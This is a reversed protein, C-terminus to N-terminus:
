DKLLHKGLSVKLPSEVFRESVWRTANAFQPAIQSSHSVFLVAVVVAEHAIIDDEFACVPKKRHLYLKIAYGIPESWDAVLIAGESPKATDAEVVSLKGPKGGEGNDAAKV